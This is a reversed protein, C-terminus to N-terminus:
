HCGEATNLEEGAWDKQAQDINPQQAAVAVTGM